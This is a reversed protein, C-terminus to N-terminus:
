HRVRQLLDLLPSTMFTTVLATVVLMTFLEFSLIGLGLGIDLVILEVLGRTNMLVGLATADRWPLGMVRGAALTGGLKGACAALLIVGLVLWSAPSGIALLDISMGITAFFVPLFLAFVVGELRHRLDSSIRLHSPVVAGFLFAGFVAHVGIVETAAASALLAAIVVSLVSAPSPEDRDFRELVWRAVPRLVVFVFAVFLVTLLITVVASRAASQAIGVVVALLCWAMADEVAAASLAMTGLPTKTMGRDSLIRALVPFATVSLSVGVFLAFVPYPTGPPAYSDYLGAAIGTGLVFPVAIGAIAVVFTTRGLRRLDRLDLELGVLFMYLVVGLSGLVSLMPKVSAPLLTASLEPALRGLLSPGLLIGGILEGVVPPQGLRRFAAGCLRVGVIITALALLLHLLTDAGQTVAM